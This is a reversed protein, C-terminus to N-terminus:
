AEHECDCKKIPPSYILIDPVQSYRNGPCTDRIYNLQEILRAVSLTVGIPPFYCIPEHKYGEQPEDPTRLM